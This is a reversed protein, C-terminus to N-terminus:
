PYWNNSECESSIVHGNSISVEWSDPVNRQRARSEIDHPTDLNDRIKSLDGLWSGLLSMDKGALTRLTIDGDFVRMIQYLFLAQTRALRERPTNAEHLQKLENPGQCLIRLVPAKNSDTMNSYLSSITLCSRM